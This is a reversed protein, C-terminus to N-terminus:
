PSSSGVNIQDADYYHPQVYAGANSVYERASNDTSFGFCLPLIDTVNDGSALIDFEVTFRKPYLIAKSLKFTAKEQLVIWKGKQGDVTAVVAAGNTKFSVASAGAEYTAFNENFLLTDGPIFDGPATIARTGKKCNRKKIKKDSKKKM